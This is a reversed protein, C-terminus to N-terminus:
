IRNWSEPILDDSSRGNIFWEKPSYVMKKPNANLWAGWWSFTSNAIINHKCLSMLQMDIYSDEGSNHDIFVFQYDLNLNDKAWSIDDSFVFFVPNNIAKAVREIAKNYYDMSCQYYVKSNASNSLYDGRRIHLSVSNSANILHSLDLNKDKLESKFTFIERVEPAIDAFYKESQWYGELYAMDTLQYINSWYTFTPEIVYNSKENGKFLRRYFKRILSYRKWGLVGEVEKRSAIPTNIDFIRNLEYGNHLEYGNFNSIDLKLHTGKARAVAFSAAYQFMQNGLGGLINCVIM